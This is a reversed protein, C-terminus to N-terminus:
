SFLESTVRTDVQKLGNPHLRHALVGEKMKFAHLKTDSDRLHRVDIGAGDFMCGSVDDLVLLAGAFM